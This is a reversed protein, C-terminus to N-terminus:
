YHRINLKPHTSGLAQNYVLTQSKYKKTKVKLKQPSSKIVNDRRQVHVNTLTDPSQRGTILQLNCTNQLWM